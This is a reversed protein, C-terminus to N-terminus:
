IFSFKVVITQILYLSLEFLTVHALRFVKKVRSFVTILTQVAMKINMGRFMVWV